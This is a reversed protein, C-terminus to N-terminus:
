KKKPYFTKRGAKGLTPIQMLYKQDFIGRPLPNPVKINRYGHPNVDTTYAHVVCGTEDAIKQANEEGKKGKVGECMRFEITGGPAMIRKLEDLLAKNLPNFIDNFDFKTKDEQKNMPFRNGVEAGHGTILLCTVSHTPLKKKKIKSILGHLGNFIEGNLIKARVEGLEENIFRLEKGQYANWKCRCHPHPKYQGDVQKYFGKEEMIAPSQEEKNTVITGDLSNCLKCKPNQSQFIKLTLESDSLFLTDSSRAYGFRCVHSCNSDYKLDDTRICKQVPIVHDCLAKRVAHTVNLRMSEAAYAVEECITNCSINGCGVGPFYKELTKKKHYNQYNEEENLM